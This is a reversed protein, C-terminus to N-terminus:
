KCIRRIPFRLFLICCIFFVPTGISFLNPTHGDLIIVLLKFYLKFAIFSAIINITSISKVWYSGVLGILLGWFFNVISGALYGFFFVNNMFGSSTFTAGTEFRYDVLEKTAVLDMLFYTGVDRLNGFFGLYKDFILNINQLEFSSILDLAWWMQSQLIIRTEIKSVADERSVSEGYSMTLIFFMAFFFTALFLVYKFISFKLLHINYILVPVSFFFLAKFIGTAREGIYIIAMLLCIYLFVDVKKKYEKYLFGLFFSFQILYEKLSSGWSPGIYAWYDNRHIHHERPTGYKLGIFFMLLILGVVVTRLFLALFNLTRPSINYINVRSISFIKHALIIGLFFFIVQIVIKQTIGIAYTNRDIEYLYAGKEVLLSILIATSLGFIIYGNVVFMDKYSNWLITLFLFFLFISIIDGLLYEGMASFVLAFVSLLTLLLLFISSKM